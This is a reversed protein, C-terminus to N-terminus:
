PVSDARARHRIAAVLMAQAALYTSMVWVAHWPLSLVDFAHLAILADSVVFVAAGAGALTSVGTALVAMLVIAAAYLLLAPLLAGAAPACLLIILGAAGLYPLLALPRRLLSGSRYPWFAASYILQAILFFGLMLPLELDGSVVRPAADGLWSFGLAVLALGVLRGRSGATGAWLVMALLPMLVVQSVDALLSAGLAQAILHVVAVVLYLLAGSVVIHM